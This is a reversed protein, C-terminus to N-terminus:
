HIPNDVRSVTLLPQFQLLLLLKLSKSMYLQSILTNKHQKLDLSQLQILLLKLLTLLVLMVVLKIMVKFQLYLLLYYFSLLVLSPLMLLDKSLVLLLNSVCKEVM